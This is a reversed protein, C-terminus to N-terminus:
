LMYAFRILAFMPPLVLLDVAIVMFVVILWYVLFAILLTTPSTLIIGRLISADMTSLLFLTAIILTCPFQWPIIDNMADRATYDM